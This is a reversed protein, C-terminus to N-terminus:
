PAMYYVRFDWQAPLLSSTTGDPFYPQYSLGRFFRIVDENVEFYWNTGNRIVLVLEEGPEVGHIAAATKNFLTIQVHLPAVGFGPSGELGHEFDFPTTIPGTTASLDPSQFHVKRYAIFQGTPDVRVFDGEVGTEWVDFGLNAALKQETIALAKVKRGTVAGLALEIAGISSDSLSSVETVWQGESYGYLGEVTNGVLKLWLPFEAPNPETESAQIQPPNSATIDLPVYKSTDENWVYPYIGDKFWPGVNGSPEVSATSFGEAESSIEMREVMADFFEQPTGRFHPPLPAINVRFKAM